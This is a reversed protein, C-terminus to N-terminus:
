AKQSSRVCSAHAQVLITALLRLLSLASLYINTPRRGAKATATQLCATSGEVSLNASSRTCALKFIHLKVMLLRISALMKLTASLQTEASSSDWKMSSHRSKARRHAKGHHIAEQITCSETESEPNNVTRLGFCEASAASM